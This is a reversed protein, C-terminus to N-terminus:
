AAPRFQRLFERLFESGVQLGSGRWVDEYSLPSFAGSSVPPGSGARVVLLAPVVVLPVLLVLLVLLVFPVVSLM